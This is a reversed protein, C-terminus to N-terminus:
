SPPVMEHDKNEEYHNKNITIKKLNEITHEDAPQQQNHGQLGMQRIMNHIIENLNEYHSENGRAGDPSGNYIITRIASGNEGNGQIIIVRSNNRPQSDSSRRQIPRNQQIFHSNFRPGANFGLPIMSSTPNWLNGFSSFSSMFPPVGDDESSTDDGNVRSYHSPIHRPQTEPM